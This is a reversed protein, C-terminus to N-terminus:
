YGVRLIRLQGANGTAANYDGAFTTAVYSQLTWVDTNLADVIAVLHNYVTMNQGTLLHSTEFVRSAEVGNKALRMQHASQTTANVASQTTTNWAHFLYNGTPLTFSNGGVITPTLNFSLPANNALGHTTFTAYSMSGVSALDITARALTIETVDPPVSWPCLLWAGAAANAAPDYFCEIPRGAVIESGTLATDNYARLAKVGVGNVNLTSASNNSAGPEFTVRQGLFYAKPLVFNLSTTVVYANAAGSDVGFQAGSAIRGAGEALLDELTESEAVGASDIVKRFEALLTNLWLADINTGGSGDAACQAFWYRAGLATAAHSPRANVPNTAPHHGPGFINQPM